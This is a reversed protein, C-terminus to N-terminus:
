ADKEERDKLWAASNNLVHNRENVLAEIQDVARGVKDRQSKSTIQELVEDLKEARAKGQLNFVESLQQSPVEFEKLIAQAGAFIQNPQDVYRAKFAPHLEPRVKEVTASLERITQEQKQITAKADPDGAKLREVAEKNEKALRFIKKVREFQADVM